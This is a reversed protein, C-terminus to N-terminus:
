GFHMRHSFQCLILVLIFSFSTPAKEERAPLSCAELLGHQELITVKKRDKREQLVTRHNHKAAAAVAATTATAAVATADTGTYVGAFVSLLVFGNNREALFM